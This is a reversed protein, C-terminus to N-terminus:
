LRCRAARRRDAVAQGGRPRSRLGTRPGPLDMAANGAQQSGAPVDRPEHRAV